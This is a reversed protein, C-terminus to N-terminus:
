VESIGFVIKRIQTHVRYSFSALESNKAAPNRAVENAKLGCEVQLLELFFHVRQRLGLYSTRAFPVRLAHIGWNLKSCSGVPPRLGM